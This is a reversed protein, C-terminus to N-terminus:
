ERGPQLSQAARLVDSRSIQGILKGEYIVPFRKYHTNFFLNAVDRITTHPSVTVADTSMYRSVPLHGAPQDMYDADILVRLCDRESIMGVLKHSRDTIPAGSIQHSVLINIVHGIDEDPEFTILRTTMYDKVQREEVRDREQNM